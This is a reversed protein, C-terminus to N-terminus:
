AKTKYYDDVARKFQGALEQAAAGESQEIAEFAGGQHLICFRDGYEECDMFANVPDPNKPDEGALSLGERAAAGMKGFATITQTEADILFYM